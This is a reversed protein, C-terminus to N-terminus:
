ARLITTSLNDESLASRLELAESLPIAKVALEEDTALRTKVEEEPLNEYNGHFERHLAKILEGPFANRILLTGNVRFLHAARAAAKRPLGGDTVPYESLDIQAKM